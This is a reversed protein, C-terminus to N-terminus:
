WQVQEGHCFCLRFCKRGFPIHVQAVNNFPSAQYTGGSGTISFTCSAPATLPITGTATQVHQNHLQKWSNTSCTFCKSDGLSYCLYIFLYWLYFQYTKAYYTTNTSPSVTQNGTGLLTGGCSGSIGTFWTEM